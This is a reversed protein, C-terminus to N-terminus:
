LENRKSSLLIYDSIGAELYAERARAMKRNFIAVLENVPVSNVM